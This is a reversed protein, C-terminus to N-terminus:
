LNHQLTTNLPVFCILEGLHLLAQSEVLNTRHIMQQSISGRYEEKEKPTRFSISKIKCDILAPPVQCRLIGGKPLQALFHIDVAESHQTQLDDATSALNVLGRRGLLNVEGSPYSKKV